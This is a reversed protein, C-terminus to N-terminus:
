ALNYTASNDYYYGHVRPSTQYLTNYTSYLNGHMQCLKRQAILHLSKYIEKGLLAGDLLVLAKGENCYM